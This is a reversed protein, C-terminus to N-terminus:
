ESHALLDPYLRWGIGKTYSFHVLKTKFLNKGFMITRGKEDKLSIGAYM